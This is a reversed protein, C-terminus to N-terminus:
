SGATTACVILGVTPSVICIHIGILSAFASISVYGAVAFTLILFYEIYNLDMYVKECM